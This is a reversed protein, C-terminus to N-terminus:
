RTQETIGKALWERAMERGQEAKAPAIQAALAALAASARAAFAANDFRQPRSQAVHVALAYRKLAQVTDAPMGEGRQHFQGLALHAAAMGQAAAQELLAIARADDRAVGDGKHYMWGLHYSAPAYGNRASRTLWEAARNGDKAVGWGHAHLIGLRYQARPHNAAAARTLWRAASGYDQSFGPSWGHFNGTEYAYGLEFQAEPWKALGLLAAGCLASAAILATIRSRFHPRRPM